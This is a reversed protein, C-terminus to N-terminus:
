SQICCLNNNNIQHFDRYLNPFNDDTMFITGTYDRGFQSYESFQEGLHTHWEIHYDCTINDPPEKLECVTGPKKPFCAWAAYTSVNPQLRYDPDIQLLFHASSTDVNAHAAYMKPILCGPARHAIEIFYFQGESTKTLELHTVGAKPIGLTHLVEEAIPTIALADPHDNPLVITGKMQGVTFDYCPRSNESVFSFLIQGNQIYSDCHYMTGEIFEDIEYCIDPDMSQAWKHLAANTSIKTLNMASCMNTPKIFLPFRMHATLNNLYTLGQQRYQEANVITYRPTLLQQCNKLLHKMITKDCFRQYDQTDINLAVRIKGCVSVTQESNTIVMVDNKTDIRSQIHQLIADFSFDDTIIMEKLYSTQHNRNVIDAGFSNTILYLEYKEPQAIDKAQLDFLITSNLLIFVKKM